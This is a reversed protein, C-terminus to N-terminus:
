MLIIVFVYKLIFIRNEFVGTNNNDVGTWSTRAYIDGIARGAPPLDLLMRDSGIDTGLQAGKSGSNLKNCANRHSLAKQETVWDLIDVAM